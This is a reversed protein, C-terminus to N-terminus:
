TRRGLPGYLFHSLTAFRKGRKKKEGGTGVRKRRLLQVRGESDQSGRLLSTEYGYIGKVLERQRVWIKEEGKV